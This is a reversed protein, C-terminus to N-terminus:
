AAARCQAELAHETGARAADIEGVPVRHHIQEGYLEVLHLRGAAHDSEIEGAVGRDLERHFAELALEGIEARLPLRVVPRMVQTGLPPDVSMGVRRSMRSESKAERKEAKSAWFRSLASSTSTATRSMRLSTAARPSRASTSQVFFSSRRSRVLAPMRTLACSSSAANAPTSLRVRSASSSALARM